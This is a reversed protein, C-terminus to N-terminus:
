HPKKLQGLMYDTYKKDTKLGLKHYVYYYEKRVLNPHSLCYSTMQSDSRGISMLPKQTYIFKGGGKQIMRIYFEMDILWKLKPDYILGYNKYITASPAGIVSRTYLNRIDKEIYEANDRTIHRAYKWDSSVEWTGSFAFDAGSNDILSVYEELSNEDTFWDDHLMMKIYEGTAEEISSNWNDGPRKTSKHRKYIIRNGLTSKYNEVIDELSHGESGKALDDSVIVEYDTFSQKVISNLLRELGHRDKYAPICISVKPM